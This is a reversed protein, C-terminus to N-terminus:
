EDTDETPMGVIVMVEELRRFDVTPTITANRETAGDRSVERVEGVSIGKPYIGGVGSTVIKDGPVLDSDSPLYYLEMTDVDNGIELLGRAMGGDRTRDVMVSVSMSKDIIAIVKCYTAGIQSVRGVLGKGSVVAMNRKVGQARGVNLTFTDYWVTSNRAIITATVYSLEPTAETFDLLAKLRENEKRLAEMETVAQELQALQAKLGQNEIDADTTNFVGRIFDIIANSANTAFTQAPQLIGGAATEIFTLVRDGSPALALILLLFIAILAIMLPRNKLINRM